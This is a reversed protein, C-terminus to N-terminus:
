TTNPYRIYLADGWGCTYALKTEFRVFGKELLFADIENIKSCNKYVDEYNVELYIADAYRIYEGASRLARLEVGQIDFNWFNFQTMDINNTIIFNDLRMTKEHIWHTFFIDRYHELHTNMDLLSSSQMNNSIYFPVIEEKEDILAHYILPIGREKQKDVLSKNGEIWVINLDSIGENNYAEKEDCIHAGLHLIGRVPIKLDKLALM